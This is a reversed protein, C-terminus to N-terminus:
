DPRKTLEWADLGALTGIPTIEYHQRFFGILKRKPMGHGAFKLWPADWDREDFIRFVIVRGGAALTGDIQAKARPLVAPDFRSDILARDLKLRPIGPLSFFSIDPRGAYTAFHVILDDAGFRTQMDAEHASLPYLARPLAYLSLNVTGVMLLWVTAAVAVASGGPLQAFLLLTPFTVQFWIEPDNVNTTIGFGVHGVLFALPVVVPFGGTLLRLGAALYTLGVVIITLVFPVIDRALEWAYPALSDIQGWLRARMVPGLDPTFVYNYVLAYAGRALRDIVGFDRAFANGHKQAIQGLVYGIFDFPGGPQAVDAVYGVFMAAAGIGCCIAGYALMPTLGHQWGRGARHCILLIGLAIFPLVTIGTVLFATSMGLAAASMTLRYWNVVKVGGVAEHEWLVAHYLALALFPLALMKIHPTPALALVNFSVVALGAVAVRLWLGYGLRRLLLYFIALGIAASLTNIQAMSAVVDGGDGFLRHWILAAPQLFIHFVRWDFADAELKAAYLAVDDTPVESYLLRFFLWIVAFAGVLELWDRPRAAPLGRNIPSNFLWALRAPRRRNDTSLSAM